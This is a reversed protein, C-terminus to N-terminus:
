SSAFCPAVSSVCGFSSLNLLSWVYMYYITKCVWMGAVKPLIQGSNDCRYAIHRTGAAWGDLLFCCSPMTIRSSSYVGHAQSSALLAIQQKDGCFSDMYQHNDHCSRTKMWDLGREFIEGTASWWACCPLLCESHIQAWPCFLFCLSKWIARNFM